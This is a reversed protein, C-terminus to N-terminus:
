WEPTTELFLGNLCLSRIFWVACNTICSFLQICICGKICTTDEEVVFDLGGSCCWEPWSHCWSFLLSLSGGWRATKCPIVAWLLMPNVVASLPAASQTPVFSWMLHKPILLLGAFSHTSSHSLSLQFNLVVCISVWGGEEGVRVSVLVLLFLWQYTFSLFPTPWKSYIAPWSVQRAM